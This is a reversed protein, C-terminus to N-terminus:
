RIVGSAEDLENRLRACDNMLIQKDSELAEIVANDSDIQIEAQKMWERAERGTCIPRLNWWNIM